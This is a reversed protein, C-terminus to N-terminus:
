FNQFSFAQMTKVRVQTDPHIKMAYSPCSGLARARDGEQSFSVIAPMISTFGTQPLLEEPLSRRANRPNPVTDQFICLNKTATTAQASLKEAANSYSSRTQRCVYRCAWERGVARTFTNHMADYLDDHWGIAILSHIIRSTHQM